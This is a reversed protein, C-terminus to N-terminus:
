NLIIIKNLCKFSDLKKITTKLTPIDKSFKGYEVSGDKNFGIKTRNLFSSAGSNSPHIFINKDEEREGLALSYIKSKHLIINKKLYEECFFNPEFCILKEFYQSLDKSWLGINAGIDIAFGWNEVYSIARNRQAEQYHDHKKLYEIYHTDTEPVYYDKVKIM